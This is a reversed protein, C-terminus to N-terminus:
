SRVVRIPQCVKAPEVERRLNPRPEAGIARLQDRRWTELQARPRPARPMCAQVGRGFGYRYALWIAVAVIAVATM